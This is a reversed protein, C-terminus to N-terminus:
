FATIGRMSVFQVLQRGRLNDPHMIRLLAGDSYCRLYEIMDQVANTWVGAETWGNGM